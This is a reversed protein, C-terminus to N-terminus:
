DNMMPHCCFPLQHLGMTKQVGRKNPAKELGLPDENELDLRFWVSNTFNLERNMLFTFFLLEGKKRSAGAQIDTFDPFHPKQEDGRFELGGSQSACWAM